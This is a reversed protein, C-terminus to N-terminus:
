AESSFRDHDGAVGTRFLAALLRPFDEEPVLGALDEASGGLGLRRATELARDDAFPYLEDWIAQAERFFIDVGVDGIGKCEKLLERERRPDRGAADRLKRLDGGYKEVLLESTEGLMRSTSEDYRAYGSRNLVDTRQRWTAGKMAEATTWGEDALARAADVAHQCGIRASGLLCFALYRFLPSPEGRELPIGLEDAFTRGREELLERVVNDKSM